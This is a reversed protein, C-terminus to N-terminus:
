GQNQNLCVLLFGWNAPKPAIFLNKIANKFFWSGRNVRIDWHNFRRLTLTTYHGSEIGSRGWAIKRDWQASANTM